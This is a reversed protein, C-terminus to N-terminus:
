FSKTTVCEVEELDYFIILNRKKARELEASAGKSSAIFFLAEAWNDLFTNDYKYYFDGGYDRQCSHHIHLYHSLHPIFPYHGREILAHAVEIARDVNHQAVRAADHISCNIPLYPGAIYIRLPKM